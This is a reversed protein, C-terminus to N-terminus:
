NTEDERGGTQIRYEQELEEISMNSFGKFGSVLLTELYDSGGNLVIYEITDETLWNVLFKRRENSM